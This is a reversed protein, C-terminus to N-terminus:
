IGERKIFAIQRNYSNKAIVEGDLYTNNDKDAITQLLVEVKELADIVDDNKNDFSLNSNNKYNLEFDKVINDDVELNTLESTFSKNLEGAMNGITSKVDKFKTILGENLGKMIADGAPILLRRDYEIPGKNERIWDAIGSVFNQISSWISKLGNLFGQMISKGISLLDINGLYSFINSVSDVLNSVGSKFTGWLSEAINVIGEIISIVSNKINEWTNVAIDKVSDIINSFSNKFKGWLAQIKDTLKTVLTVIITKIIEWVASAIQSIGGWITQLANKVGEWINSITSALDTFDGTVIDVIIQVAGMVLTKILDWVGQFINKIGDWIAMLPESLSNWIQILWEVFPTVIAMVSDKLLNWKEIAYTSISNWLNSFYESLLQGTTQLWNTFDQWIQKGKETQTFFWVLAGVLSTIGAIAAVFPNALLTLNFLAVAVRAINIAITFAQVLGSVVSIIELAVFYGVLASLATKVLALAGENEKLYQTFDKIWGTVTEVAKSLWEFVNVLGSVNSETGNIGIIEGIFESIIGLINKIAQWINLFANKINDAINIISTATEEDIGLAKILDIGEANSISGTLVDIFAEVIGSIKTLIGQINAVLEEGLIGKLQGFLASFAGILLTPLGKLINGVMPLFNGVLFTATTEALAELSPRINKGLSLNGLLNSFAAKMANFSGTLTTSAEKATTGTIDLEQQIAHIAKFVDSLNSIDYHVGTLKEADRLLREM